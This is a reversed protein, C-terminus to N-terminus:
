FEIMLLASFSLDRRSTGSVAGIYTLNNKSYGIAIAPKGGVIGGGAMYRGITRSDPIILTDTGGTAEGGDAKVTVRTAGDDTKSLDVYATVSACDTPRIQVAVQRTVKGPAATKRVPASAVQKELTVSGDSHKAAPAPVYDVAVEQRSRWLTACAVVIAAGLIAYFLRDIM